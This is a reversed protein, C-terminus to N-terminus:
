SDQKDNCSCKQINGHPQPVKNFDDPFCLNLVLTDTGAPPAEPISWTKKSYYVVNEQGVWIVPSFKASVQLYEQKSCPLYVVNKTNDNMLKISKDPTKDEAFPNAIFVEVDYEQWCSNKNIVIKCNYDDPAKTNGSAVATSILLVFTIVIINKLM